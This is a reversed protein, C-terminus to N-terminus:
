LPASASCTWTGDGVNPGAPNLKAQLTSIEWTIGAVQENLEVKDEPPAAGAQLEYYASSSQIYANEADRTELKKRDMEALATKRRETEKNCFEDVEARLRDVKAELDAKPLALAKLRHRGKCIEVNDRFEKDTIQEAELQEIFFDMDLKITTDGLEAEAVLGVVELVNACRIAELVKRRRTLTELLTDLAKPM